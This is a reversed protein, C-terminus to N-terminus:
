MIIVEHNSMIGTRPLDSVDSGSESLSSFSCDRSRHGQLESLIVTWEPDMEPSAEIIGKSTFGLHALHAFTNPDPSSIITKTLKNVKKLKAPKYHITSKPVSTPKPSTNRRITNSTPRAEVKQGIRHLVKRALLAAEEDDDFLLGFRRSRGSFAHFFPKDVSYDLKSPFKFVWVTKQTALDVLRFWFKESDPIGPKDSACSLDKGFVLFGRQRSSTWDQGGLPAHYLRASATAYVKYTTSDLEPLLDFSGSASPSVSQSFSNSSM